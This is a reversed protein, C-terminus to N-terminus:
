NEGDIDHNQYPSLQSLTMVQGKWSAMSKLDKKKDATVQNHSAGKRLAVAFGCQRHRAQSAGRGPYPSGSGSQSTSESDSSLLTSPRTVPM